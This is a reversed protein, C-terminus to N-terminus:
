NGDLKVSVFISLLLPSFLCSIGGSLEERGGDSPRVAVRGTECTMKAQGTEDACWWSFVELLPWVGCAV